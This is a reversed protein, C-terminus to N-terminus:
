PLYVDHQALLFESGSSWSALVFNESHQDSNESFIHANEDLKCLIHANEALKCLIHVNEQFHTCKHLNSSFTHMKGMFIHANESFICPNGLFIHANEGHFHTCKWQFAHMKLCFVKGLLTVKMQNNKGSVYTTQLFSINECVNTLRDTWSWQPPTGHSNQGHHM